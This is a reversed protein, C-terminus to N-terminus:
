RGGEGFSPLCHILFGGARELDYGLAKSEALLPDTTTIIMEAPTTKSNMPAADVVSTSEPKNPLLFLVLCAFAPPLAFWMWVPRRHKQTRIEPDLSRLIGAELGPPTTIEPKHSRLWDGIEPFDDSRKM